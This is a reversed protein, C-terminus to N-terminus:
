GERGATARAADMDRCEDILQRIGDLPAHGVKLLGTRVGGTENNVWMEGLMDYLLRMTEPNEAIYRLRDADGALRRATEALLDRELAVQRLAASCDIIGDEVARLRTLMEGLPVNGTADIM